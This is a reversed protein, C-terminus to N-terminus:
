KKDENVLEEICRRKDDLRDVFEQIIEDKLNDIEYKTFDLRIGADKIEREVEQMTTIKEALKLELPTM